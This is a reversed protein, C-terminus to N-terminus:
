AGIVTVRCITSTFWLVALADIRKYRKHFLMKILVFVKGEGSWRLVCMILIIIILHEWRVKFRKRYSSLTSQKQLTVMMTEISTKLSQWDDSHPLGRGWLEEEIELAETLYKRADRYNRAKLCISGLLYVAHATDTSTQGSLKKRREAFQKTVSLADEYRCFHKFLCYMNLLVILSVVMIDVHNTLKMWLVITVNYLKIIYINTVDFFVEETSVCIGSEHYLLDSLQKLLKSVNQKVRQNFISVEESFCHGINIPGKWSVSARKCRKWFKWCIITCPM